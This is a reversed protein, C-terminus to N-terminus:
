VASPVLMTMGALAVDTVNSTLKSASVNTSPSSVTMTVRVLTTPSGCIVRSGTGALRVAVTVILSVCSVAVTDIAAM